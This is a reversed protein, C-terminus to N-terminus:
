KLEQEDSLRNPIEIYLAPEFQTYPHTIYQSNQAALNSGELRLMTRQNRTLSDWARMSDTFRVMAQGNLSSDGSQKALRYLVVGLNNNAKLYSDVIDNDEEKSQPFLIEHKAREKDLEKLLDKYYSQAAFNDGRLALVNGLSLLLSLDKSKKESVKIFSNLASDLNGKNYEISGVKYNIYPTDNNYKIANRYNILATEVDGSIYYDIDALDSYLKGTDENGSIGTKQNETTFINIGRTFSEQAKLFEKHETYLEGLVRCGNIQKYVSKKTQVSNKDFLNLAIEMESIAGDDSGNRLFYRAFNYHSVPNLPNADVARELMSRVDEISSRLYEDSRSLPGYLKDLLYGSLETWDDADLSKKNPYFRNKLELVNRLKDRRIFYRMMRSMFLDNAGYLDILNSYEDRAKEYKAEDIEAWELYVDGLLLMSDKDNIYYDLVERRIIEEAREFNSRDYLEMEAYELGAKKDQKFTNLINKYMAGAREYQKNERYGRAYTYYWKKVSNYKVAENFMKDSQVFQKNELLAYGQKYLSDAKIPKYIFKIGAEILLFGVVCLCLGAIVAPIIKNKLQYQFSQKYAEYQAVSRREFDRPVNISIDLMKELKSALQRAPIKKIVKEIVDFVADDTFENKAILEEIAVRLNLPYENLNTKFLEYESETLSNKPKDAKLKGSEVGASKKKKEVEVTEVDSFGPIDFDTDLQFDDEGDSDGTVPFDDASISSPSDSFDLGDMDSIDFTLMEESQDTNVEDLPETDTQESSIDDLEPIAFDEASTETFDESQVDTSQLEDNVADEVQIDNPQSEDETTGDNAESSADFDPLDFDSLSIDEISDNNSTEASEGEMDSESSTDSFDGLDDSLTKDTDDKTDLQIDDLESLDDLINDDALSSSSEGEDVETNLKEFDDPISGFDTLDLDDSQPEESLSESTESGDTFSSEDPLDFNMDDPLDINEGIVEDSDEKTDTNEVDENQLAADDLSEPTFSIDNEFDALDSLDPVATIDDLNTLDFDDTPNEDSEVSQETLLDEYSNTNESDSHPSEPIGLVFDKTDDDEYTNQPLPVDSVVDGRQERIAPENGLAKILNNFKELQKLGPM